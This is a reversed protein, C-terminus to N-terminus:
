NLKPIYCGVAREFSSKVPKGVLSSEIAEKLEQRIAAPREKGFDVYRDDIRGHYLLAGTKSFFAAEPTVTARSKRVLVQRPDLLAPIRYNFEQLHKRALEGTMSPDAYVLFFRIGDTQHIQHLRQIEPAYRNAIPCDPQLFVLVVGNGPNSFPDLARGELDM